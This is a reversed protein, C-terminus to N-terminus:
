IVEKCKIILHELEEDLWEMLKELSQHRPRRTVYDYELLFTKISELPSDNYYNDVSLDGSEVNMCAVIYGKFEKNM